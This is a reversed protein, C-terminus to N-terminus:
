HMGGNADSIMVYDESIRQDNPCNKFSLIYKKATLSNPSDVDKLCYLTFLIKHPSSTETREIVQWNFACANRVVLTRGLGKYQFGIDLLKNKNNEFELVSVAKVPKFDEDTVAKDAIALYVRKESGLVQIWTLRAKLENVAEQDFYSTHM